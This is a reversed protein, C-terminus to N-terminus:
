KDIRFPESSPTNCDPSNLKQVKGMLQYELFICLMQFVPDTKTRMHIGRMLWTMLEHPLGTHNTPSKQTDRHSNQPEIRPGCIASATSLYPIASLIEFKKANPNRSQITKPKTQHIKIEVEMKTKTKIKIHM